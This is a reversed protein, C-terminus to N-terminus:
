HKYNYFYQTDSGTRINNYIEIPQKLWYIEIIVHIAPAQSAM